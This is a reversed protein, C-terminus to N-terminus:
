TSSYGHAWVVADGSTIHKNTYDNYQRERPSNETQKYSICYFM